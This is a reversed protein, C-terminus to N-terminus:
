TLKAKVAGQAVAEEKGNGRPAGVVFVSVNGWVTKNGVITAM